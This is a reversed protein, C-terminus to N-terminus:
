AVKRRLMILGLALLGLSAPVPVSASVANVISANGESVMFVGTTYISYTTSFVGTDDLGRMYNEYVNTGARRVLGDEDTYFGLTDFRSFSYTRTDFQNRFDTKYPSDPSAFSFNMDVQFYNTLMVSVEDNTALRFGQLTTSTLSDATNMSMGKTAKFSLWELGTNADILILADGTNIYDEEIFAAQVDTTIASLAVSIILAVELFKNKFM